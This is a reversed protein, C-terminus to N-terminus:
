RQTNEMKREKKKLQLRMTGMTKRMKTTKTTEKRKKLLQQKLHQRMTGMTRTINKEM